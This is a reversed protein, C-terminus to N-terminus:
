WGAIHTAATKFFVISFVDRNSHFVQNFLFKFYLKDSSLVFLQM